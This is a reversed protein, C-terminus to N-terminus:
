NFRPNVVNNYISGFTYTVGIWAGYEYGSALQRQRLLVEESTAGRRPLSLQDRVRSARGFLNLSLGQVLRLASEGRAELRHKSADHLYHSFELEASVTGWPERRDMEIEVGQRARTEETLGFLTTEEYRLSRMELKYQAVLRRRTSQEYPFVSLEAVPGARLGRDVNEFSSTWAGVATGASWHPGLSKVVFVNLDRDVRTSVVDAPEEHVEFRREEHRASLGLNIKWEPTVRNAGVSLRVSYESRSEEGELEGEARTSFVWYNWSDRVTRAKPPETSSISIHPAMQTKMVYRMLGLKLAQALGRRVREEPEDKETVHRLTENMSAFRAQGILRLAYERGGAGTEQTTVLLHVDSDARDRVYDVFTIETRLYDQFCNSACDLFVKPRDDSVPAAQEAAQLEERTQTGAMGADGLLVAALILLRPRCSPRLM